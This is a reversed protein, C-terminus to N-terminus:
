QLQRTFKLANGQYGKSVVENLLDQVFTRVAATAIRKADAHRPSDTPDKALGRRCASPGGHRCKGAPVACDSIGAYYGSTLKTQGAGTLTAADASCTAENAQAVPTAVPRVGFDPNPNSNGLEVWNTHAYFDSLAHLAQGLLGRASGLQPNSDALKAIIQSRLGRIRDNSATIKENDVHWVPDASLLSGRDLGGNEADISMVVDVNFSVSQGGITLPTGRYLADLLITRHTSLEFAATQTTTLPAFLSIAIWRLLCARCAFSVMRHTM